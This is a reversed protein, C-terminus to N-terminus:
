ALLRGPLLSSPDIRAHRIQACTVRLWLRSGGRLVDLRVTVGKHFPTKALPDSPREQSRPVLILSNPFPTPCCLFPTEEQFEIAQVLGEQTGRGSRDMMWVFNPKARVTCTPTRQTGDEPPM